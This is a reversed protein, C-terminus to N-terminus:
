SVGLLLLREQPVSLRKATCSIGPREQFWFTIVANLVTRWHIRDQTLQIWNVYGCVIETPVTKINYEWGSGLRGLLM